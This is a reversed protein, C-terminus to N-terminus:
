VTLKAAPPFGDPVLPNPRSTQDLSWWTTALGMTTVHVQDNGATAYIHIAELSVQSILLGFRPPVAIARAMRSRFGLLNESLTLM